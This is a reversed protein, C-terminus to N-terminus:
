KIKLILSYILDIVTENSEAIYDYNYSAVLATNNKVLYDFIYKLKEEKTIMM